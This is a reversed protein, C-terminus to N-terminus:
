APHLETTSQGPENPIRHMAWWGLSLGAGISRSFRTRPPRRLRERRDLILWGTALILWGIFAHRAKYARRLPAQHGLGGGRRHRHRHGRHGDAVNAEHGSATAAFRVAAAALVLAGAAGFPVLQAGVGADEILPETRIVPLPKTKEATTTV